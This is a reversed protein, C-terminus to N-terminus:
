TGESEDNESDDKSDGKLLHYIKDLIELIKELQKVTIM